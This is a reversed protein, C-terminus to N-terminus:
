DVHNFLYKAQTQDVTQKRCVKGSVPVPLLTKLEHCRRLSVNKREKEHTRRSRHSHEFGLHCSSLFDVKQDCIKRSWGLALLFCFIFDLVHHPNDIPCQNLRSVFFSYVLVFM